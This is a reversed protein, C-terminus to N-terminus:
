QPGLLGEGMETGSIIPTWRRMGAGRKYLKNLLRSYDEVDQLRKKPNPSLLIEALEDALKERQKQQRAEKGKQWWKLGKSAVYQQPTVLPLTTAAMGLGAASEVFDGSQAEFAEKTSLKEPTQSGRYLTRFKTLLERELATVDALRRGEPTKYFAQNLIRELSTPRYKGKLRKQVDQPAAGGYLIKKVNVEIEAPAKELLDKYSHIMGLKAYRQEEPSMKNWNYEFDDASFKQGKTGASNISNMGYDFAATEQEGGQWIRRAERYPNAGKMQPLSQVYGDVRDLMYTRLDDLGGAAFGENANRMADARSKLAKKFTDFYMLPMNNTPLDPIGTQDILPIKRQNSTLKSRVANWAAEVQPDRKIAAVMDNILMQDNIPIPDVQAYLPKALKEKESIIDDMIQRVNGKVEPGGVKELLELGRSRALIQNDKMFKLGKGQPSSSLLKMGSTLGELSSGEPFLHYMTVIEGFNHKHYKELKDWLQSLPISDKQAGEIIMRLAKQHRVLGLPDLGKSVLGREPDGFGGGPMGGGTATPPPPLEGVKELGKKVPGLVPMQMPGTRSLGRAVAGAGYITSPIATGAVGGFKAAGAIDEEGRGYAYGASFGAGTGAQVGLERVYPDAKGLKSIGPIKAVGLRAAATTQGVGPMKWAGVLQSLLSMNPNAAEFGAIGAQIETLLQERAKGEDGTLDITKSMWHNLYSTLSDSQGLTLGQGIQQIIQLGLNLPDPMISGHFMEPLSPGVKPLSIKRKAEFNKVAGQWDEVSVKQEALYNKIDQNLKAEYEPGGDPREARNVEQIGMVKDLMVRFDPRESWFYSSENDSM